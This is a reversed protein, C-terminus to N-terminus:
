LDLPTTQSSANKTLGRYDTNTSATSCRVKLPVARTTSIRRKALSATAITTTPPARLQYNGQKHHRHTPRKQPLLAVVPCLGLMIALPSLLVVAPKPAVVRNLVLLQCFVAQQNVEAPPSPVVLLNFAVRSNVEAQRNLVLQQSFAMQQNLVALPNAMASVAVLRLVVLVVTRNFVALLNVGAWLGHAQGIKMRQHILAM